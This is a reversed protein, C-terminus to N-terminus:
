KRYPRTETLPRIRGVAEAVWRDRVQKALDPHEGWPVAMGFVLCADPYAPYATYAASFRRRKLGFDVYGDVTRVWIAHEQWQSRVTQRLGMKVEFSKLQPQAWKEARRLCNQSDLEVGEAVDQVLVVNLVHHDEGYNFGVFHDIAWYRVRKYNRHDPLPVALQNDRDRREGWPMELQRLLAAREPDYADGGPTDRSISSLSPPAGPPQRPAISCGIVFAAPIWFSTRHRLPKV